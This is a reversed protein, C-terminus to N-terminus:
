GAASAIVAALACPRARACMKRRAAPTDSYGLRGHMVAYNDIVLLDGERWRFGVAQQWVLDRLYTVTARFPQGEVKKRGGAEEGAAKKARAGPQEAKDAKPEACHRYWGATEDGTQSRSKLADLGSWWLAPLM